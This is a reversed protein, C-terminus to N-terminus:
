RQKLEQFVPALDGRTLAGWRLVEPCAGTVDVVTSAQAGGADPGPEALLFPGAPDEECSRRAEARTRAPSEGSRNLSTATLPGLGRKELERALRQALPHSSCRVGVAGDARAVGRAFERCEGLELRHRTEPKAALRERGDRVDRM